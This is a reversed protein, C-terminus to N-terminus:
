GLRGALRAMSDAGQDDAVVLGSRAVVLASALSSLATEVSRAAASWSTWGDAFSAAAVGSWGGDLLASVERDAEVRADSLDAVARRVDALVAAFAEDELSITM